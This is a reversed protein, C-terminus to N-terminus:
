DRSPKLDLAAIEGWVGDVFHFLSWRPETSDGVYEALLSQFRAVLTELELGVSEHLQQLQQRDHENGRVLKSAALDHADLVWVELHELEPLVRILRDEYDPPLQAIGSNAIPILLGTVMRARAAAPEILDLRSNYTDIDSTAASVGYGLVLASGGIVVISASSDLAEDLASLFRTLEPAGHQQLSM